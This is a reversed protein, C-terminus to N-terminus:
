IPHATPNSGVQDGAQRDVWAARRHEASQRAWEPLGQYIRLTSFIGWGNLLGAQGPSLWVEELPLARDNHFVHQHMSM